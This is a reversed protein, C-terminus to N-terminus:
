ASPGINHPRVRKRRKILWSVGILDHIGVLGRQLNNYNSSGAHRHRHSVDVHAVQWGYASFLAPLYRHMHNFFPLDLFADRRFAKLGCGTDRTNDKLIRQRIGNALKSAIKKSWTDQRKERQGAVLGLTSAANAALLPAVLRPIEAPPNQGDGDMTCIIAARAAQVGSHVAASQGGSSAHHVVRVWPKVKAAAQLRALTTDTSGDDIFIAEFDDGQCAAEIEGILLDINDAENKMPVVVSFRPTTTSTM